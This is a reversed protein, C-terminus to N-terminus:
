RFRRLDTAKFTWEPTKLRNGFGVPYWPGRSSATLNRLVHIDQAPMYSQVLMFVKEGTKRNEAMDVVLVAHGPFGGEIFVDGIRMRRPDAVARMERRLSWTGAYTFVTRLYSNFSRRGGGPVASRRWSVRNGRVVPRWGAMWREFAARDGSTFNFRIDQFRRRSYLYEARLRMVADACQQLDRRGTDIAVVAVHVGQLPKLAGNHLRVPAGKRRLPLHRLWHAFSGPEVAVRVFGAPPAFRATITGHVTAADRWGYPSRAQGTANVPTALVGVALTAALLPIRNPRNKM